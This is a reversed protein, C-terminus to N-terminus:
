LGDVQVDFLTSFKGAKMDSRAKEITGRLGVSAKESYADMVGEIVTEDAGTLRASGQVAAEISPFISDLAERTQRRLQPYRLLLYSAEWKNDYFRKVYDKGEPTRNMVLDRFSRFVELKSQGALDSEMLFAIPCSSIERIEDAGVWWGNPALRGCIQDQPFGCGNDWNVLYPLVPDNPDYCYVTGTDGKRICDSGSPYDVTAEVRADIPIYETTIAEATGSEVSSQGQIGGQSPVGYNKESAGAIVPSSVVLAGAVVIGVITRLLHRM